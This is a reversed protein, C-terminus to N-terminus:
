QNAPVTKTITKTEEWFFKAGSVSVSVSNAGRLDVKKKVESGKFTYTLSRTRRAGLNLKLNSIYKRAVVKGNVKVTITMNKIGKIKNSTGNIFHGKVCYGKAIKEITSFGLTGNRYSYANTSYKQITRKNEKVTVKCKYSASGVKATITATGTKKASVKGSKSVSAVKSNSSSWSVKTANKVTLQKTYGKTVTVKKYNLKLNNVTVTVKLTEDSNQASIVTKGAKLGTVLGNEVTAVKPNSSIWMVEGQANNLTLTMSSGVNVSASLSKFYPGSYNVKKALSVAYQYTTSSQKCTLNSIKTNQFVKKGYAISLAVTSFSITGMNAFAEDGVKQVSSPLSVSTVGSCYEFAEKGISTVGEGAFTITKLKVCYQFAATGISTVSAPITVATIDKTHFAKDGITTVMKGDLTDPIVAQMESGNYGTITVSGDENETYSYDEAAQASVGSFGLLIALVAVMMIAAGRKPIVNWKM